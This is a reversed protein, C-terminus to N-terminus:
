YLVCPLEGVLVEVDCCYSTSLNKGVNELAQVANIERKGEREEKGRNPMLKVLGSLLCPVSTTKHTLTHRKLKEEM